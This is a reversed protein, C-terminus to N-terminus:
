CKHKQIVIKSTEILWVDFINYEEMNRVDRKKQSPDPSQVCPRV